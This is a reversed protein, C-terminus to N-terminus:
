PMDVPGLVDCAKDSDPDQMNFAQIFFAAFDTLPESSNFVLNNGDVSVADATDPVVEGNAPNFAGSRAAEDHIEHIMASVTGDGHLLRLVVAWSFDNAFADGASGALTVVVQFGADGFDLIVANRIDVNPVGDVAAGSGCSTADGAPDPTDLVAVGETAGEGTSEAAGDAPETPTLTPTDTPEKEPVSTPDPTPTQSAATCFADGGDYAYGTVSPKPSSYGFDTLAKVWDVEGAKVAWNLLVNFEGPGTESCEFLPPPDPTLEEGPQLTWFGSDRPELLSVSGEGEYGLLAIVAGQESANGATVVGQFTAGKPKTIESPTMKVWVNMDRATLTTFHAVEATVTVVGTAPDTSTTPDPLIEWSGDTSRTLLVMAPVGNAIDIGSLDTEGLQLTITAPEDLVLGAPELRYVPGVPGLAKMGDSWDSPPSESISIITDEALAGPPIELTLPSDDAPGISVTGGAAATVSEEALPAASPPSAPATASTPAPTPPPAPLAATPRPAAAVPTAAPAVTAEPEPQPDGCNVLVLLAALALVAVLLRPIGRKRESV